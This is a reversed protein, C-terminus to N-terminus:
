SGNGPPLFFAAPNTSVYPLAGEAKSVSVEALDLSWLKGDEGPPVEVRFPYTYRKTDQFDVFRELAGAVRGQSDYLVAGKYGEGEAELTLNVDRAGAPVRFYVRPTLAELNKWDPTHFVRLTPEETLIDWARTVESRIEVRYPGGPPLRLSAYQLPEGTAPLQASGANKGRSNTIRITAPSAGVHRLFVVRVPRKRDVAELFM